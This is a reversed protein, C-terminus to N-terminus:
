SFDNGFLFDYDFLDLGGFFGPYENPTEGRADQVFQGALNNGLEAQASSQDSGFNAHVRPAFRSGEIPEHKLGSVEIGNTNEIPHMNSRNISFECSDKIKSQFDLSRSLTAASSLKQLNDLALLYGFPSSQNNVNNVPETIPHSSTAMTPINNFITNDSSSENVLEDGQSFKGKPSVPGMNTKVPPAAKNEMNPKQMTECVTHVQQCFNSLYQMSVEGLHNRTKLDNILKEGQDVEVRLTMRLTKVIRSHLEHVHGLKFIGLWLEGKRMRQLIVDFLAFLKFISFYQFRLTQSTYTYVYEVANELEKQLFSIHEFRQNLEKCKNISAQDANKSLEQYEEFLTYNTLNVRIIIGLLSFLTSPLALQILKTVNYFTSSLLFSSYNGAFYDNFFKILNLADLCTQTMFKFYYPFYKKDDKVKMEFHLFLAASTRLFMLKSIVRSQIANSNGNGMMNLSLKPDDNGENSHSSTKLDLLPFNEEIYLEIKERLLEIYRMSFTNNYSMTLNDLDSLLFALQARKLTLEHIHLLMKDPKDGMDRIVKEMYYKNTNSSRMNMFLSMMESSLLPHRGKLTSEFSCIGVVSVWLLRRQNLLRKDSLHPDSLQPFDDPDRHLGISTALLMILSSIVDTPHELFLDGEEPSFAFFSWIYLLCSIINENACACWNESALCRQALLIVDNNIPYKDVIERKIYIQESPSDTNFCKISLYSLKLTVLLISLNEIKERIHTYGLNLKIRNPDNEDRSISQNLSEEFMDKQIFPLNPYVYEYFHNKYGTIVDYPPLINEFETIFNQLLESYEGNTQCHDELYQYGVTNYLMSLIMGIKLNRSSNTNQLIRDTFETIRSKSTDDKCQKMLLDKLKAVNNRVSPQARSINANATLAPIMSNNSPAIFISAILSSIFTDQIILYNESLPKVDNKMVKSFIMTSHNKYLNIQVDDLKDNSDDSTNNSKGSSGLNPSVESKISDKGLGNSSEIQENLKKQEELLKMAKNQWYNVDRELKAITADKNPIRPRAQKAEDYVCKIEQKICRTCEPKERDCKTKSKRCAQCVFSIRNRKRIHYATSGNTNELTPQLPDKQDRNNTHM